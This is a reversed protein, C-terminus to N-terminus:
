QITESRYVFHLLLCLSVLTFVFCM